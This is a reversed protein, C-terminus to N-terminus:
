DSSISSQSTFNVRGAGSDIYVLINQTDIGSTSDSYRVSVAPISDMTSTFATYSLISPPASDFTRTIVQSSDSINGITDQSIFYFNFIGQSPYQFYVNVTTDATNSSTEYLINNVYLFLTDTLNQKIVTFTNALVNTCINNTVNWLIPKPLEYSIIVTLTDYNDIQNIGIQSMTTKRPETINWSISTNGSNIVPSCTISAIKVDFNSLSSEMLPYSKIFISINIYGSDNYYNLKNLNFTIDMGNSDIFHANPNSISSIISTNSAVSLINLYTSDFNLYLGIANCSDNSIINKAYIDFCFTDLNNVYVFNSDPNLSAKM